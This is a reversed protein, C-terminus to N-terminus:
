IDRMSKNKRYLFVAIGVLVIGTIILVKQVIGTKPLIKNTTSNDSKSSGNTTNGNEITTVNINVKAVNNYIDKVEVTEEKNVTYIKSLSFGDESLEWGELKQLKNNAIIKVEVKGDKVKYEVNVKLVTKTDSDEENVIDSIKIVANKVNGALDKIQINEGNTTTNKTYVKTLSMEDQSLTWGDIEQIKKDAKITVKCSKKDESLEYNVEVNPSKKDINTIKVNVTKVQGNEDTVNINEGSESTNQSYIKTLTKKDESLTWGDIKIINQNASITVKVDQNTLDKTSYDVAVVLEEVKKIDTVKVTVQAKNGALDSVEVIDGGNSTNEMYTKSLTKKDASLIWGTVEKIAENSTITVKNSKKDDSLQKSVTLTPAIKDINKISITTTATMGDTDTITISENVNETYTKTISKKDSSLSWGSLEQIEKNAIITAIVKQNTPETTSYTVNVTLPEVRKEEIDKVIISKTVENGALDKIQVNEGNTTTNKTYVKTLSMGDESLTWGDIEQIKKDAKITVKCSKKDESLEYNVEVNPSKKDINTIKVNVTKVQGNEDTVNINEGSESTNQSYIKTLTKKDESLTWGDIKIINQNASITVKVDQNTLDKTSYDVAVVLEEVKKIDTVKVTVQAKNGALDSVEVIDGGNSTNEMYTKSLTKKDASLIWGTVEKIAENSTITVKNSKKDDSLQKSVTLTPAIKDINKISINATATTGETDTVTINEDINETYTKTISKKDSSLSWGSTEKIEKNATITVIVTQNTPETTSYTVNVTLPDVKEPEIGTVIVNETVTNGALDTIVVNEGTDLTNSTYTKTLVKNDDSM